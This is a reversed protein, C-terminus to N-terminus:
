IAQSYGVSQACDKFTKSVGRIDREIPFKTAVFYHLVLVSHISHPHYMYENACYYSTVSFAFYFISTCNWYQLVTSVSDVRQIWTIKCFVDM